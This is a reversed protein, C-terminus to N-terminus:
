TNTDAETSNRKGVALMVGGLTLVAGLIQQGSLVEDLLICALIMTMIPSFYQMVNVVNLSVRSLAANWAYFGIVTPFLIIYVIVLWANIDTPLFVDRYFFVIIIMHTMASFLMSWSTVALDNGPTLMKKALVAGVAWSVAAGLVIINGIWHESHSTLEEPTFVKIVLSCSATGVAIGIIKNLTLREGIFTGLLMIFVPSLSMIMAASTATTYRPGWLLGISMGTLSFLSLFAIKLLETMKIRLLTKRCTILCILFLIVGGSLFRLCSLSIPDIQPTTGNMLYRAAVYVSSWVFASVFSWSIGISTNYKGTTM